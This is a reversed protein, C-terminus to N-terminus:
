EWPMFEWTSFERLSEEAISYGNGRSNVREYEVDADQFFAKVVDLLDDNSEDGSEIANEFIKCLPNDANKKLNCQEYAYQLMGAVVVALRHTRGHPVLTKLMQVWTTYTEHGVLKELDSSPKSKNQKKSTSQDSTQKTM